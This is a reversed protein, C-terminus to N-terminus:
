QSPASVTIAIAAADTPLAPLPPLPPLEPPTDASPAAAALEAAGPVALSSANTPAAAAATPAAADAPAATSSRRSSVGSKKGTEKARCWACDPVPFQFSLKRLCVCKNAMLMALHSKNTVAQTSKHGQYLQPSHLRLGLVISVLHVSGHAATSCLACGCEASTSTALASSTSRAQLILLCLSSILVFEFQQSSDGVM